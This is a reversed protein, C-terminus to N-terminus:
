DQPDRTNIEILEDITALVEDEKARILLNRIAAIAVRLGVLESSPKRRVRRLSRLKEITSATDVVISLVLAIGMTWVFWLPFTITM